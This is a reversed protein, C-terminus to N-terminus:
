LSWGKSISTTATTLLGWPALSALSRSWGYKSARQLAWAVESALATGFKCIPFGLSTFLKGWTVAFLSEM